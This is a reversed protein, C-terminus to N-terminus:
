RNGKKWDEVTMAWREHDRWKGALKLYKASYGELRFGLGYVLAISRKNDPQINAELRHLKHRTFADEIVLQLGERLLGRTDNPALAYYGLYGFQAVGRIIENINIVGALEGDKTCVFRCVHQPEKARKVFARYQAPTRPPSAWHRHLSRSRRVAALFEQERTLSPAELVVGLTAPKRKASRTKPM